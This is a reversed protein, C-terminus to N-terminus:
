PAKVWAVLVGCAVAFAVIALAAWKPLPRNNRSKALPRLGDDDPEQEM